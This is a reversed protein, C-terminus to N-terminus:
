DCEGKTWCLCDARCKVDLRTFRGTAKFSKEGPVPLGLLKNEDNM